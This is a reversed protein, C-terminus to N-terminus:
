SGGAEEAEPPLVVGADVLDLATVALLAGTGAGVAATKAAGKFLSSPFSIHANFLPIIENKRRVHQFEPFGQHYGWKKMAIRVKKWYTTTSLFQWYQPGGNHTRALAELDGFELAWPCWRLWYNIVTREAYDIEECFEYKPSHNAQWWADTHYATSIQLPGISMGDDGKPAPMAFSSEVERLGNLLMRYNCRYEDVDRPPPFVDFFKASPYSALGKFKAKTAQFTWGVPRERADEPVLLVDGPYLVDPIMKNVDALKELTLGFRESIEWATDGPQVVWEKTRLPQKGVEREEM